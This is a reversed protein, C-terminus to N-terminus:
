ILGKKRMYKFGSIAVPWALMCVLTNVALFTGSDWQLLSALLLFIITTALVALSALVLCAALRGEKLSRAYRILLVTSLPLALTLSYCVSLLIVKVVDLELLMDTFFVLLTGLGPSILALALILLVIHNDRLKAIDNLASAM